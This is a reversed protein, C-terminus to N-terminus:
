SRIKMVLKKVKKLTNKKDLAVMKKNEKAQVLQM